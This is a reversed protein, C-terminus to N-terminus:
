GSEYSCFFPKREVESGNQNRGQVEDLSRASKADREADKAGVVVVDSLGNM